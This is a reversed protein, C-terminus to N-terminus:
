EVATASNTPELLVQECAKDMEIVRIAKQLCNLHFEFTQRNQDDEVSVFNEPMSFRIRHNNQLEVPKIGNIEAWRLHGVDNSPSYQLIEHCTKNEDIKDDKMMNNMLEAYAIGQMKRIPLVTCGQGLSQMKISNCQAKVVNVFDEDVDASSITNDITQHDNDEVPEMNPNNSNDNETKKYESEVILPYEVYGTPFYIPQSYTEIQPEYSGCGQNTTFESMQKISSLKKNKKFKRKFKSTIMFLHGRQIIWKQKLAEKIHTEFFLSSKDKYWYTTLNAISCNVRNPEIYISVFDYPRLYSSSMSFLICIFVFM